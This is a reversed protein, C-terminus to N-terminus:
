FIHTKIIKQVNLHVCIRLMIHPKPANIDMRPIGPGVYECHLHTEIDFLILGNHYYQVRGM